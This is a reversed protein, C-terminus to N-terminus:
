KQPHKHEEQHKKIQKNKTNQKPAQTKKTLKKHQKKFFCFSDFQFCFVIFLLCFFSVFLVVCFFFWYFCLVVGLVSFLFRFFPSFSFVVFRLVRFSFRVMFELEEETLDTLSMAAIVGDFVFSHVLFNGFFISTFINVRVVFWFGETTLFM